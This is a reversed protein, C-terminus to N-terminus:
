RKGRKRKEKQINGERERGAGDTGGARHGGDETMRGRRGETDEVAPADGAQGGKPRAGRPQPYIPVRAIRHKADRREGNPNILSSQNDIIPAKATQPGGDETGQSGAEAGVRGKPTGDETKQRAHLAARGTKSKGKGKRNKGKAEPPWEDPFNLRAYEGFLEVAKRDYARAAEAEDDFLGLRYVKGNCCIKACWKRCGKDWFVGKYISTGRAAKGLNHVNQRRTCNRMNYRGNNLGNNDIHDVVHGPPPQMIERHMWVIRGNEFRAAYPNGGGRCSWRYQSLWVYDEPDVLAFKGRTLPILCYPRGAANVGHAGPPVPGAPDLPAPPPAAPDLRPRYNRCVVNGPVERLEGPADPHNLCLPGGPWCALMERLWRGPSWRSYICTYCTRKEM